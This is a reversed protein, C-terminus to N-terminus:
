FPASFGSGASLLITLIYGVLAWIIIMVRVASSDKKLLYGTGTLGITTILAGVGMGDLSEAWGGAATVIIGIITIGLLIVTKSFLSEFPSSRARVPRSTGTLDAGCQSCFDSDGSIEAGCEPCEKMEAMNEGGLSFGNWLFNLRQSFDM